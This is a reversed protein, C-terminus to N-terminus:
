DPRPAKKIQWSMALLGKTEPNMPKKPPKGYYLVSLTKAKPKRYTVALNGGKTEKRRVESYGARQLDAAIAQEASDPGHELLEYVVRRRTAGAKTTVTKDSRLHVRAGFEVGGPLEVGGMDVSAVPVPVADVQAVSADDGSNQGTCAVLALCAILSLVPSRVVAGLVTWSM